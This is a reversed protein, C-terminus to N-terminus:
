QPVSQFPLSVRVLTGGGPNASIQCSGGVEVARGQMSILGLGDGSGSQIGSGDDSIELDLYALRGASDAVNVRITCSGASAHKEINTLAELAIYYAATEVSAPLAPLTVPADVRLALTPHVQAQERLAGVLGLTELEPPHLQHALARVQAIAANLQHNIARMM